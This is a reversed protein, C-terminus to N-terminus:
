RAGSREAQERAAAIAQGTQEHRDKNNKAAKSRARAAQEDDSHEADGAQRPAPPPPQPPLHEKEGVDRQHTSPDFATM